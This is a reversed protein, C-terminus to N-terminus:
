PGDADFYRWIEGGMSSNQYMTSYIQVSPSGLHVKTVGFNSFNARMDQADTGGVCLINPLNVLCPPYSYGLSSILDLDIGENGAACM